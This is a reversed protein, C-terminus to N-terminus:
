KDGNFQELTKRYEPNTNQLLFHTSALGSAGRAQADMLPKAFKGFAEPSSRLLNSIKDMGVAVTSTVRPTILRRGLMSTVMGPLGGMVAGSTGSALDNFGGIPNQNLTNVRKSAADAMPALMGYDKKAQIFKSALEPTTNQAANEVETKFADALYTAGKKDVEPSFYNVTGQYNRKAQEAVNIPLSSSGRAKLNDVQKLIQSVLQENGPTQMLEDAQTQLKTIITPLDVTVGAGAMEDISSGIKSGAAQLGADLKTSIATPSDFAQVYKNDLLYRGADDAYESAQKGTAGTAKVALREAANQAKNATGSLARGVAPAAAKIGEGL